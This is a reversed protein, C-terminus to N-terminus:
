LDYSEWGAFHALDYLDPVSVYMYIQATFTQLDDLPFRHVTSSRDSGHYQKELPASLFLLTSCSCATTERNMLLRTSCFCYNQPEDITAYQLFFCYNRPGDVTPYQLFLLQAPITSQYQLILLKALITSQPTLVFPVRSGPYLILFVM